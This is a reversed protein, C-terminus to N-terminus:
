RLPLALSLAASKDPLGSVAELFHRFTNSALIRQRLSSATSLIAFHWM